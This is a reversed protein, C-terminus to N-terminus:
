EDCSRQLVLLNKQNSCDKIVCRANNYDYELIVMSRSIIGDKSNDNFQLLVRDKDYFIARYNKQPQKM